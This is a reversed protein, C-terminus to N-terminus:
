IAWLNHILVVNVCMTKNRVKEVVYIHAATVHDSDNVSVFAVRLFLSTVIDRIIIRVIFNNYFCDKKHVIAGIYTDDKKEECM